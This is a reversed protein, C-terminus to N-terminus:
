WASAAGLRTLTSVKWGVNVAHEAIENPKEARPICNHSWMTYITQRRECLLMANLTGTNAGDVFYFTSSFVHFM